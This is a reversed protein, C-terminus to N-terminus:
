ATVSPCNVMFRSSFPKLTSTSRPQAVPLPRADYYPLNLGTGIGIELVVGRADPVVKSRQSMAPPTSCAFHVIRPLVHKNYFGM